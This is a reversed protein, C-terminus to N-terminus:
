QSCRCGWIKHLIGNLAAQDIVLGVLSTEGNGTCSIAQGDFMRVVGARAPRSAFPFISEGSFLDEHPDILSRELDFVLRRCECQVRKGELGIMLLDGLHRMGAAQLRM